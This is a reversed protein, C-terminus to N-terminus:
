ETSEGIPTTAPSDARPPRDASQHTAVLRLQYLGHGALVPVIEGPIPALRGEWPVLLLDDLFVGESVAKHSHFEVRSGEPAEIDFVNEDGFYRLRM